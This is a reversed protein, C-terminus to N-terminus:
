GLVILRRGKRLRDPISGMITTEHLSDRYAVGNDDYHVLMILSSFLDAIIIFDTYGTEPVREGLNTPPESGVQERAACRFLALWPLNYFTWYETRLDGSELFLVAEEESSFIAFYTHTQEPDQASSFKSSDLQQIWVRGTEAKFVLHQDTLEIRPPIDAVNFSTLEKRGAIDYKSEWDKAVPQSGSRDGDQTAHALVQPEAFTYQTELDHSAYNAAGTWAAWTWSPGNFGRRLRGVNQVDVNV